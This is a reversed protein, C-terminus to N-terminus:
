RVILSSNRQRMEIEHVSGEDPFHEFYGQLIDEGAANALLSAAIEGHTVVAVARGAHQQALAALKASARDFGDHLSEGGAPQPDKGAKWNRMRATGSSTARDSGTDLTRFAEDVIPAELGLAKAIAEATQRARRAPSSYVAVIEKGRLSAGVREAKALGAPTLADLEATSMARPRQAAPVNKWANAHRIVYVRLGSGAAPVPPAEQAHASAALAVALFLLALSAHSRIM